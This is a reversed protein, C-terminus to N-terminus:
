TRVTYGAQNLVRIVTEDWLRDDTVLSDIRDRFLATLAPDESALHRQGMIRGARRGEPDLILMRWCGYDRCIAPRTQHVTCYGKATSRDFRLFPCANPHEAVISQDSFLTVKDPDVVVATREGTYQNRVLYRHM